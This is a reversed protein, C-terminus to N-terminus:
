GDLVAGPPLVGCYVGLVQSEIVPRPLAAINFVRGGGSTRVAWLSSQSDFYVSYEAHQGILRAGDLTPIPAPEVVECSSFVDGGFPNFSTQVASCAVNAFNTCVSVYAGNGVYKQYCLRNVDAAARPSAILPLGLSVTVALMWRFTAM